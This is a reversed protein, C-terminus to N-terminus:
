IRSLLSPRHPPDSVADEVGNNAVSYFNSGAYAASCQPPPVLALTALLYEWKMTGQCGRRAPGKCAALLIVAFFATFSTCLPASAVDEKTGVKLEVMVEEVRDGMM